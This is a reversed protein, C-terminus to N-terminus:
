KLVESRPKSTTPRSEQSSRFSAKNRDELMTRALTELESVGWVLRKVVGDSDTAFIEGPAGRTLSVTSEGLDSDFDAELVTGSASWLSIGGWSGAGVFLDDDAYALSAVYPEDGGRVSWSLAGERDFSDLRLVLGSVLRSRGDPSFAIASPSDMGSARVILSKVLEGGEVDLFAIKADEATDAGVVIQSGADDMALAYILDGNDTDFSFDLAQESTLTRPTRLSPEDFLYVREYSAMAIRDGHAVVKSASEGDLLKIEVTEAIDFSVGAFLQGGTVALWRDSDLCAISEIIGDKLSMSQLTAPADLDLRHIVGDFGGFLLARSTKCYAIEAFADDPSYSVLQSVRSRASFTRMIGDLYGTSVFANMVPITSITPSTHLRYPRGVPELGLTFLQMPREEMNRNVLLRDSEWLVAGDVFTPLEDDDEKNYDLSRSAVIELDGNLRVIRNARLAILAQMDDRLLWTDFPLLAANEALVAGTVTEVHRVTGDSTAYFVSSDTATFRAVEFEAQEICHLPTVGGPLADIGTLRLCGDDGSWLLRGPDPEVDRLRHGSAGGEGPRHVLIRDGDLDYIGWADDEERWIARGSELFFIGPQEGRPDLIREHHGDTTYASVGGDRELSVIRQSEPNWRIYRVQATDTPWVRLDRVTRLVRWLAVRTRAPVHGLGARAEAVDSLIRKLALDTDPTAALREAEAASVQLQAALAERDARRAADIALLSVLALGITLLVFLGLASSLARLRATKRRRDTFARQLAEAIEPGPERDKRDPIGSRDEIRLLAEARTTAEGEEAPEALWEAAKGKQPDVLAKAVAGEVDILRLGRGRGEFADLERRVWVSETLACRRCIVVLNRSNRLRIATLKGLDNGVHYDRTDLHTDFGLAQLERDLAEPYATGDAHAYSIFFDYGFLTDAIARPLRVVTRFLKKLSISMM